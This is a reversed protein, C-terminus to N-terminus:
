STWYALTFLILVTFIELRGAWMLLALLVTTPDSYALYNEMPGILGFGPGINGLSAAVTSLVSLTDTELGVRVNEAEIVATSVLTLFFYAVIMLVVQRVIRKEVVRQGVHIPRVASSHINVFLERFVAKTSVIWRIM